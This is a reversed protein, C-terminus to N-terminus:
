RRRGLVDVRPQGLLRRRGLGAVGPTMSTLGTSRGRRRRLRGGGLLGVGLGLGVRRERVELAALGPVVDGLGDRGIRRGRRLGAVEAPDLRVVLLGVLVEQLREERGLDVRRGGDDLAGVADEPDAPDGLDGGLRDVGGVLGLDDVVADGEVLVAGDSAAVDEM